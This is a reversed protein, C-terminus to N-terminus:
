DKDGRLADKAADAADGVKDKVTGSARDVRGENKLSDDDTLDGAAQKVRGKADDLNGDDAM